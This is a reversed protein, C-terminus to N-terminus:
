CGPRIRRMSSYPAPWTSASKAPGARSATATTSRWGAAPYASRPPGAGVRGIAMRRGAVVTSRPRGLPDPGAVARDLDGAPHVPQRMGAPAVGRVFRKFTEPFLVVDKNEPCFIIGHRDFTRFDSTSALATAPRAALRCRLHLLFAWRAAHDARGRRMSRSKARRCCCSM